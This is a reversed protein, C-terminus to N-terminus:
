RDPGKNGKAGRTPEMTHSLGRLTFLPPLPPHFLDLPHMKTPWHSGSVSPPGGVLPYLKSRLSSFLVWARSHRIRKRGKEPKRTKSISRRQPEGVFVREKNFQTWMSEIARGSQITRVNPRQTGRSLKIRMPILRGSLATRKVVAGRRQASRGVRPGQVRGDSVRYTCGHRGWTSQKKRPQDRCKKQKQCPHRV